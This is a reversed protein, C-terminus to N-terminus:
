NGVLNIIESLPVGSPQRRAALCGCFLSWSHWEAVVLGFGDRQSGQPHTQNTVVGAVNGCRHLEVPRVAHGILTFYEFEHLALALVVRGRLLWSILLMVVGAFPMVVTVRWSPSSSSRVSLILFRTM